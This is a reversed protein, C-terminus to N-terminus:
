AAPAGAGGLSPPSIRAGLRPTVLLGGDREVCLADVNWRAQAMDLSRRGGAMIATALVDATVIDEALVSVQAFGERGAPGWIHEGRESVGSTALARWNGDLEVSTLLAGRDVPDVIGVRWPNGFHHGSVLVDGGANLLWDRVGADRLIAGSAEMAEAKIIGSLDLRGDPSSVSFASETAEQWGLARHLSARFPSSASSPSEEGRAIRSLESREDYPSFREDWCRFEEELAQGIRQPLSPGPRLVSVVTGMSRFVTNAM